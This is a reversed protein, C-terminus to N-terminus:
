KADRCIKLYNRAGSVTDRVAVPPEDGYQDILAQFGRAAEPYRQQNYFSYAHWFRASAREAETAAADRSLSDYLERAREHNGAQGHYNAYARALQAPATGTRTGFEDLLAIAANPGNALLQDDALDLLVQAAQPDTPALELLRRRLDMRRQRLEPAIGHGYLNKDALARVVGGLDSPLPGIALQESRMQQVLREVVALRQELAED